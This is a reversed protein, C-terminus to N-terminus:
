VKNEGADAAIKSNTKDRFIEGLDSQFPFFDELQGECLGNRLAMDAQHFISGFLGTQGCPEEDFIQGGM